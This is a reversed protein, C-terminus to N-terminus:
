RMTHTIENAEHIRMTCHWSTLLHPLNMAICPDATSRLEGFHAKDNKYFTTIKHRDSYILLQLM